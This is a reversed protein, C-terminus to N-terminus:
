ERRKKRIEERQREFVFKVIRDRIDEDIVTFRVFAISHGEDCCDFKVVEGYVYYIDEGSTPLVLKIELVEGLQYIDPTPFSMGSGSINVHKSELAHPERDKNTLLNLIADLKRNLVSLCEYLSKDEIEPLAHVLPSVAEGATKSRLEAREERPVMRVQLPIFADVRSYDRMECSREELM